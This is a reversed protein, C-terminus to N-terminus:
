VTDTMLSFSFSLIFFGIIINIIEFLIVIQKSVIFEECLLLNEVVVNFHWFYM